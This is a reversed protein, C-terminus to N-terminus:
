DMYIATPPPPSPPFSSTMNAAQNQIDTNNNLAQLILQTQFMNKVVEVQFLQYHCMIVNCLVDEVEVLNKNIIERIDSPHLLNDYDM